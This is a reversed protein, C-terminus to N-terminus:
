RTTALRRSIGECHSRLLEEVDRIRSLSEAPATDSLEEVAIAFAEPVVLACAAVFDLLSDGDVDLAEAFRLVHDRRVQSMAKKGGIGMALKEYPISQGLGTAVDYMHAFVASGDTLIASFNKAHGDPAAVIWNLLVGRAFLDIQEEATGTRRLASVIRTPTVEYKRDPLTSTSQCFDEQHLRYLTGAHDRYRDYRTVVITPINDFLKFASEAILPFPMTPGLVRGALLLARMTLHELLAHDNLGPIGPKFIHTTAQSGRAEFWRDNELRLAFKSQQGGLSWHEGEAIWPSAPSSVSERLRAAIREEDIPVLADDENRGAPDEPIFQVAGPCDMGIKELLSFPNNANAGTRRATASRVESNEPLLGEIYARTLRPPIPRTSPEFALSLRPVGEMPPATLTTKGRDDQDLHGITRGNMVMLLRKM